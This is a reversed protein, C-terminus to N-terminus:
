LNNELTIVCDLDANIQKWQQRLTRYIRTNTRKKATMEKSKANLMALLRQEITKLTISSLKESYNLEVDIADIGACWSIHKRTTSSYGRTNCFTTGNIRFLLPYHYGYSYINCVSDKLVSSCTKEKGDANGFEHQIFQRTTM